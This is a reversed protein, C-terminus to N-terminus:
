TESELHQTNSILPTLLSFPAEERVAPPQRRTM